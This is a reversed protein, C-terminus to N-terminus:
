KSKFYSYNESLRSCRTRVAYVDQLYVRVVETILLILTKFCTKQSKQSNFM